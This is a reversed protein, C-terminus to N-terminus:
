MDIGEVGKKANGDRRLSSVQKMTTATMKIFGAEELEAVEANGTDRAGGFM